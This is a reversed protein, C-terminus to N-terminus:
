ETYYYDGTACVDVNARQLVTGDSFVARFDFECYGKNNDFNLRLSTGSPLTSSGLIDSGWRSAGSNTSYFNTMTMGTNNHITLHRDVAAASLTSAGLAVAALTLRLTSIHM